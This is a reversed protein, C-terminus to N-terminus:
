AKSSLRGLGVYMCAPKIYQFKNCMLWFFVTSVVIYLLYLMYLVTLYALSSNYIMLDM